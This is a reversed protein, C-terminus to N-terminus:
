TVVSSGNTRHFVLFHVNNYQLGCIVKMFSGLLRSLHAMNFSLEQSLL